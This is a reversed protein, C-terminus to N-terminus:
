AVSALGAPMKMDGLLANVAEPLHGPMVELMTEDTSLSIYHLRSRLSMIHDSTAVRNADDKTQWLSLRGLTESKQSMVLSFLLGEAQGLSSDLEELLLQAEAESGPRPQLMTLRLFAM